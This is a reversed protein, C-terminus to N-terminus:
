NYTNEFFTKNIYVNTPLLKTKKRKNGIKTKKVVGFLFKTKILMEKSIIPIQLYSFM